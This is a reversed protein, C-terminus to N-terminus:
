VTATKTDGALDAIAAWHLDRLTGFGRVEGMPALEKAVDEYRGLGLKIWAQVLPTALRHLGEEPLDTAERDAAAFDGRKVAELSLYLGALPDHPEREIIKPALARVKDWEGETLELRFTRNMLDFDDPDERLTQGFFDAAAAYDHQQQAHRGALYAGAPNLRVPDAQAADAREAPGACAALFAVSLLAAFRTTTQM